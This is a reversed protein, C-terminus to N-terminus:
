VLTSLTKCVRAYSHYIMIMSTCVCLLECQCVCLCTANSYYYVFTRSSACVNGFTYIINKKRNFTDMFTYTRFPLSCEMDYIKLFNVCKM